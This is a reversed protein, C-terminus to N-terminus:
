HFLKDKKKRRKKDSTDEKKLLKNRAHTVKDVIAQKFEWGMEDSKRIGEWMAFSSYLFFDDDEKDDTQSSEINSTDFMM